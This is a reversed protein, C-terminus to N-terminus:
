LTDARLGSNMSSLAWSQRNTRSPRSSPQDPTASLVHLVWVPRRRESQQALAWPMVSM